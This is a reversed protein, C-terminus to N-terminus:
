PRQPFRVRLSERCHRPADARMREPEPIRHAPLAFIPIATELRREAGGAPPGRQFSDVLLSLFASARSNNSAKRCLRPKRGPASRLSHPTRAQSIYAFSAPPFDWEVRLAFSLKSIAPEAPGPEPPDRLFAPVFCGDWDKCKGRMADRLGFSHPCIGRAMVAFGQPHAERLTRLIAQTAEM